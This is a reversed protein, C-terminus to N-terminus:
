NYPNYGLKFNGNEVTIVDSPDSPNFGTFHYTGQILSGWKKTISLTGTCNYVTYSSTSINYQAFEVKNILDSSSFNYVGPLTESDNFFIMIKYADDNVEHLAINHYDEGVYRTQYQNTSRWDVNNITAQNIINAVPPIYDEYPLNFSGSIYKAESNLDSPDYYINGSFNGKVRKNVEDFSILQFNFYNSSFDRFTSFTKFSGDFEYYRFIIKGFHGDEDFSISFPTDDRDTGIHMIHSKKSAHTFTQEIPTGNVSFAFETAPTEVINESNNESCGTLMIVVVLFFFNIIKM